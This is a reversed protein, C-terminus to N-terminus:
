RRKKTEGDTKERRMEEKSVYSYFTKEKKKKTAYKQHEASEKNSTNFHSFFVVVFSLFIFLPWMANDHAVFCVDLYM